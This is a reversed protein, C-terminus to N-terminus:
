GPRPVTAVAVITADPLSYPECARDSAPCRYVAKAGQADHVVVQVSSAGIWNTYVPGADRRAVLVPAAAVGRRLDDIRYLALPEEDLAHSFHHDTVWVGDPSPILVGWQRSQCASKGARLRESMPVVSVCRSDTWILATAGDDTVAEVRVGPSRVVTGTRLNWVETGVFGSTDEVQLYVFIARDGRLFEGLRQTRKTPGLDVSHRVALSPLELVVIRNTVYNVMLMTRRDPSLVPWGDQGTVAPLERWQGASTVFAVRHLGLFDERTATTAVLWGGAVPELRQVLFRGAPVPITVIGGDPTHIRDRDDLADVPLRAGVVTPPPSTPPASTPAPSSTPAPTTAAPPPPAPSAGRALLAVTGGALVATIVAAAAVTRRRRRRVAARGLRVIDDSAFAPGTLHGTSRALAARVRAPVPDTM